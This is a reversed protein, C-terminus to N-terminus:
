RLSALGVLHPGQVETEEASSRGRSMLGEQAVHTNQVAMLSHVQLQAIRVKCTLHSHQQEQAPHKHGNRFLDLDFKM